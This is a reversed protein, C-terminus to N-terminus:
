PQAEDRRGARRRSRMERLNTPPVIGPLAAQEGTGLGGAEGAGASMQAAHEIAALQRRMAALDSPREFVAAFRFAAVPDLALLRELAWEGIQRSEVEASSSQGIRREVGNVISELSGHPIARKACARSLGALLKERQFPERRGDRKVVMPEVEALREYTTFRQECRECLRRRRIGEEAPRSDIVRTDDSHCYPCEMPNHYRISRSAAGYFLRPPLAASFALRCRRPFSSAAAGRFLRLPLAASFARPLAASFALPLAASFALPLAASFALPRRM